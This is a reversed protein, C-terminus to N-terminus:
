GTALFYVGIGVTLIVLVLLIYAANRLHLNSGKPVVQKKHYEYVREIDDTWNVHYIVNKCTHCYLTEIIKKNYKSYFRKQKEEQVFSIELGDKGFCEPCNTNLRAIHLIHETKNM